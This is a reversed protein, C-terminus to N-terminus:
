VAGMRAQCTIMVKGVVCGRDTLGRRRLGNISLAALLLWFCGFAALCKNPSIKCVFAYIPFYKICFYQYYCLWCTEKSNRFYFPPEGTMDDIYKTAGFHCVIYNAFPLAMKAGCIDVADM